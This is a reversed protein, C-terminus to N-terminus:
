HAGHIVYAKVGRNCSILVNKKFLKLTRIAGVPASGAGLFARLSAGNYSQVLCLRSRLGQELFYSDTFALLRRMLGKGRYSEQITIFHIFYSSEPAEIVKMGNIGIVNREMLCCGIITGASRMVALEFRATDTSFFRKITQAILSDHTDSLTRRQHKRVVEYDFSKSDPDLGALKSVTLDARLLYSKQYLAVFSVLKRLFGRLLGLIGTSQYAFVLRQRSDTYSM